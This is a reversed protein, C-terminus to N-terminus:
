PGTTRDDHDTRRTESDCARSRLPPRRARSCRGLSDTHTLPVAPGRHIGRPRPHRQRPQARDVRPRLLRNRGRAPAQHRHLRSGGVAFEAEQLEVYASMAREAYGSALDFMSHNLAHFGALTIFQFKYGLDALEQQFRRSRSTTSTASGTSRRRATTRSCSAPSGSTSRRPSRAPWSSTPSARRSGSCTPTRARVRPRPQHGRRARPDGPLLGRAHARRHHVAQDREDVDSTLLDAALADTRAIIVTPVGAVDAALRAANLTRIHQQTPVLVKGGLHGCKKESALQDEWHIGAAGAQILSQALEYANLPGGFGAEADAVIPALWDQTRHQQPRPTSSRTRACCRTTSAASSRRCRTRPTCARTPTPRGPSTATPPSRGARCTSRRSAPACRSCPRAAPTPASRASTTRPTSCTGCARPAASRRADLGRAGLRAARHRGRRHLHARHRGM